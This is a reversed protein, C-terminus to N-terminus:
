SLDVILSLGEDVVLGSGFDLEVRAGAQRLNPVLELEGVQARVTQFPTARTTELVLQRLRLAGHRVTLQARMWSASRQQEFTGWGEPATFACRFLEGPLKPAFGIRQQPGHCEFGSLALYTGYSALARAYHDGCEIENFPNRRSAHYREHIARTVGLGEQALGEWVMHSAAQHEFGTMCENFYGAAWADAGAGKARQMGGRPWTCMLLGAEGPLAYWRGGPLTREAYERYRGVDPAFNFKWLARLAQKAYHAPVIRPLAVQRAWSEGLLQDIHCGVGTANSERHEPDVRHIFYEGNFLTDALRKSGREAIAACQAAFDLEGRETALAEGARLAAVYVGSLWSIEGHWATDLTNYQPGDLIGDLREDRLMLHELAKKIRPWTRVSFEADPAMTHERYARLITGAQGDVAVERAAEGRYDIAGSDDHFALGFDVRERQDRELEPFIRALGQAYNWVHTCTGPCSYAGEWAWFRGDQFRLCTATALTSLPIFTRELFWHPLTSDRYWTDRWLRTAGALREFNSAVHNVVATAHRFRSAYHRRLDRANPLFALADHDVHPLHWALVFTLTRSEGPALSVDRGLVGLDGPTSRASSVVGSPMSSAWAGDGSGPWNAGYDWWTSSREEIGELLLKQLEVTSGAINFRASSDFLAIATSGGDRLQEVSMDTGRPEDCFVIEDVGVNGWGGSEADVIELRATRGGLDRVNWDEVRMRNDNRGTATRVPAGDVILNICTRGAHAGGGIRFSIFRREIVFERSTLKGTHRDGGPIDEGARTNHSNLTRAGHANVDGQYSPIKAVEIPEAGFATGEVQWGSYDAREFDEFVIPERPPADSATKDRAGHELVTLNTGRTVDVVYEVRGSDQASAAVAHQMWGSFQLALPAAGTNRLTFSMVTAPLSSDELALPVFPSFAELEIELPVDARTYRVNAIPYQGRFEIEWGEGARLKALRAVDGSKWRVAFGQELQSSQTAPKAYHGGNCDSWEASPRRNLIDWLWLQGDGGLYVQGCFAGGIPMGIFKLEDRRSSYLTPEGREYLSSVWSADLGKDAPVPFAEQARAEAPRWKSGLLFAAGLSALTVVERRTPEAHAHMRDNM